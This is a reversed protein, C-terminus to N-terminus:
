VLKERLGGSWLAEVIREQAAEMANREKDEADEHGALHLLGHVFYRLLERGLPEGYEEAQRKAVEAGIVIEGHHFTIVDTPGDIQMFDMHVRESTEDDVLAVELTALYRLSNEEDASVELAMEAAEIGVDELATLWSLPIETAEQHNGIIIELPM